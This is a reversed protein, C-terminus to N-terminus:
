IKRNYIMKCCINNFTLLCLLSFVEINKRQVVFALTFLNYVRWYRNGIFFLYIACHFNSPTNYFIHTLYPFYMM